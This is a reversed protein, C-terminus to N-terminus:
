HSFLQLIDNMFLLYNCAGIVFKSKGKPTQVYNKHFEYM